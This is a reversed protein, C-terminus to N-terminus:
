NYMQQHSSEYRIPVDTNTEENRVVNEESKNDTEPIVFGDLLETSHENWQNLVVQQDSLMKRDRAKCTNTRPKFVKRAETIKTYFKKVENLGHQKEL